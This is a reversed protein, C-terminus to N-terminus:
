WDPKGKQPKHKHTGRKMQQIYQVESQRMANLLAKAQHESMNMQKLQEKNATITPSDKQKKNNDNGKDAEKQGQAKKDGNEDPKDQKEKNPQGNKDKNAQEDSAKSKEDGQEDPKPKQNEKDEEGEKKEKEKLDNKGKGGDKKDEGKEEGDKKDEKQDGEGGKDKQENKGQQDKKQQDQQQQEKQKQEQKKQEEQNKKEQQDREKKDQSKPMEKEKNKVLLEYNFRAEQNTPDKRLANKFLTIAEEKNGKEAQLIGLQQFAISQIKPQIGKSAEEYTKLANAYDAKKMYAHGLNLKAKEDKIKLTDLLYKYQQIATGYNQAAFAQEAKEKAKNAKSLLLPDFDTALVVQSALFLLLLRAIM